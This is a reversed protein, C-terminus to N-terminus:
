KLLFGRAEDLRAQEKARQERIYSLVEQQEDESFTTEVPPEDRLATVFFATVLSMVVVTGWLMLVIGLVQGFATEAGYSGLGTSTMMYTAWELSQLFTYDEVISYLGAGVFLTLFFTAVLLLKHNAITKLPDRVFTRLSM